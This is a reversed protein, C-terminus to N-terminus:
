NALLLGLATSTTNLALAVWGARWRPWRLWWRFLAAEAVVVLGELGLLVPWGLGLWKTWFLVWLFLHLLPHTLVNVGVVALLERRNWLGLLVAVGLELAVTSAFAPLYDQFLWDNM